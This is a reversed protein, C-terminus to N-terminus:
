KLVAIFPNFFYFYQPVKFQIKIKKLSSIHLKKAVLCFWVFSYFIITTKLCTEEVLPWAFLLTDWELSQLALIYMICKLPPLCYHQFHDCLKFQFNVLLYLFFLIFLFLLVIIINHFHCLRSSDFMLLYFM